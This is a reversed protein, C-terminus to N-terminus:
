VKILNCVSEPCTSSPPLQPRQKNVIKMIIPMVDGDCEDSFPLKGKLWFTFCCFFLVFVQPM